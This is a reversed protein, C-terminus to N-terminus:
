IKFFAIEKILHEKNENLREANKNLNDMTQVLITTTAACEEASAANEESIASLGSFTMVLDNYKTHLSQTASIIDSVSASIIDINIKLNDFKESTIKMTESQTQSNKEITNFSASLEESKSNLESMIKTVDNTLKQSEDALHGIETAVVAFGRGFEGAHAAEISANLSLLNTQSAIDKIREMLSNVKDIAELTNVVQVRATVIIENIENNNKDLNDLSLLSERQVDLVKSTNKELKNTKDSIDEVTEHVHDITTTGNTCEEAQQTAGMAVDGISNDICSIDKTCQQTIESLDSSSNSLDTAVQNIKDVVTILKESLKFTNRYIDGLEDSRKFIKENKDIKLNGNSLTDLNKNVNNIAESISRCFIFIIISLLVFSIIVIYFISTETSKIQAYYDDYKESIMVNIGDSAKFVCSVYRTNDKVYYSTNIKEQATILKCGKFNENTSIRVEDGEFVSIVVNNNKAIELIKKWQEDKNENENESSLSYEATQGIAYLKSEECTRATKIIGKISLLGLSLCLLIVPVLCLAVLKIRIGLRRKSGDADSQNKKNKKM